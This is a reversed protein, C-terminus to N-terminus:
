PPKNMSEGSLYYESKMHNFYAMLTEESFCKEEIGESTKWILLNDYAKLYKDRSKVPLLDLTNGEVDEYSQTDTLESKIYVTEFLLPDVECKINVEPEFETDSM